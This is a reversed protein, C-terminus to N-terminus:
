ALISLDPEGPYKVYLAAGVLPFIDLNIFANLLKFALIDLYTKPTNTTIASM